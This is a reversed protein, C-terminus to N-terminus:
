NVRVNSGQLKAQGNALRQVRSERAQTKTFDVSRSITNGSMAFKGLRGNSLDLSGIINNEIRLHQSELWSADLIPLTCDRIVAQENIPMASWESDRLPRGPGLNVRLALANGFDTKELLVQEASDIAMVLSTDRGNGYIVSNRIIFKKASVGANILGGKVREVLVDGNVTANTLDLNELLTDRITLSQMLTGRGAMAFLGRLKCQDILVHSGGYKESPECIVDELECNEITLKTDGDLNFRKAKCRIFHAEGHTGVAGWQNKDNSAGVFMCSDFITNRSKSEGYMVSQGTWVCRLFRVNSTDGWSLVGSFNCDEFRVDVCATLGIEYGGLFDCNVFSINRWEIDEFLEGSILAGEVKLHADGIEKSRLAPDKLYSLAKGFHRISPKIKMSYSPLPLLAQAAGFPLAVLLTRRTTVVFSM